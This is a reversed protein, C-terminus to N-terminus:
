PRRAPSHNGEALFPLVADAVDRPYEAHPYHGANDIMEYRGLDAPLLGIIAAAEAEPDPFDSDRRGMVVLAPCRVDTLQAAAQKLTASSSIMKQAARTRGPERLNAQLAALWSDWDAPKRGPYALDLYKSWTKVRGTLAFEGLLLAGRRYRSNRVFATASYKPPRTFPDIEVIASVLDPNTAAAITAAGGSFSQGVIVAPGGLKRIVESLDGATDVHSYSGWGTSSEGHGRLDVSAVRYGAEAILPALFRYTGRTDAMGPSLVVPPGDGVVGYAIRGGEVDVFETGPQNNM